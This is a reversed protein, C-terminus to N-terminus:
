HFKPHKPLSDKHFYHLIKVDSLFIDNYVWQIKARDIFNIESEEDTFYTFFYMNMYARDAEYIKTLNLYFTQAIIAIAKHWADSYTNYDSSYLIKM